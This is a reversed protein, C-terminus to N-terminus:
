QSMEWKQRNQYLNETLKHLATGLGWQRRPDGSEPRQQKQFLGPISGM